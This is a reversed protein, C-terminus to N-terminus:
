NGARDEAEAPLAAEAGDLASRLGAGARRRRGLERGSASLLEPLRAFGGTVTRGTPM